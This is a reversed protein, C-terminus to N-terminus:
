IKMPLVIRFTTGKGLESVYDVTGKHDSVIQQVISLGLGTGDRKTTKFLQFVDLGDPIGTGTDSIEMVVSDQAGYGKLTLAGGNPMAEVGNQCLNLIAQKMKAPDIWAPPLQEDFQM